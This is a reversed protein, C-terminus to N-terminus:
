RVALSELTYQHPRYFLYDLALAGAGVVGADSGFTSTQIRVQEGLHAFARERLTHEIIPLLVSKEQRFIGGMIILEPNFVNVLNALAVGMYRGRESLLRRTDEDGAQAAAFIRDLISGSGRTLQQALLGSPNKHALGETLNIIVPESFLTELCGTNGCHCLDGGDLVITTHGIEGAGAAAGRYLQGDVVLGAGVGVRAYIFAMARVDQAAGFLAEGLAMARVNNDVIVPLNLRTNIYERIPVNHWNLNPAVVNVGTFADVLGSAAVGIGIIQERLTDHIDILLTTETVINDLIIEWATDLPHQFTRADIKRGYLDILGIYVSGVDIHIGVAYRSEPVIQLARQPRGVLPPGENKVLGEEAVVGIDILEGILNTVTATSVGITQALHVRSVGNNRLLSLLIASINRFKIDSSNTGSVTQPYM